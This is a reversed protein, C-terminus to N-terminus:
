NSYPRSTTYGISQRIADLQYHNSHQKRKAEQRKCRKNRVRRSSSLVRYFGGIVAEARSNQGILLVQNTPEVALIHERQMTRGPFPPANRPPPDKPQQELRPRRLNNEKETANGLRCDGGELPM